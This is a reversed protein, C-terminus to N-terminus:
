RRRYFIGSLVSGRLGGGPRGYKAMLSIPETTLTYPDLILYDEGNRAVVLVWHQDNDSYATQPTLDVLATVPRGAQLTADIKDVLAPSQDVKEVFVLDDYVQQLADWRTFFGNTFGGRQIMAENLRAPDTDHGLANATMAFCTMLCGWRGISPAHPLKALPISSWRPDRQSLHKAIYQQAAPTGVPGPVTPVGAAAGPSVGPTSIAAPQGPVVIRLWLTAGFPSGQADYMRWDGFYTGPTQPANLALSIQADSGPQAPPLPLTTTATMPAGNVFRLTYGSGWALTGSNRVQWTKVFPAGPQIPTDDPISVDALFYSDNKGVPTPPMRNQVRAYLIDGFFRGQEDVFRWDTYRTGPMQPATLVLSIQGQQGPALPPLAVSTAATMPDGATHVLRCGPTWTISGNNEVLWTKTFATGAVVPTDDPITVDSVFRANLGASM